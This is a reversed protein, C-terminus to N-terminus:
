FRNKRKTIMIAAVAVLTVSGVVLVVAWFGPNDWTMFVSFTPDHWIQDGSGDFSPYNVAYIMVSAQLELFGAAEFSQEPAGADVYQANAEAEFGFFAMPLLVTSANHTESTVGEGQVYEPGAIDVHAVPLDGFERGVKIVGHQNQDTAIYRGDELLGAQEYLEEAAPDESTLAEVAFNVHFHVMTSIFIVAFDMGLLESNVLGTGENWQGFYQDLKVIGAALKVTESTTDLSYGETEVIEDLNPTFTFGMEIFALDEDLLASDEPSLGIPIPRLSPNNMKISWSIGTGEENLEPENWVVEGLSGMAFWYEAESDSIVETEVSGLASTETINTHEVSPVGNGDSDNYAIFGKLSHTMLYIDIDLGQFITHLPIGGFPGETSTSASGLNSSGELLMDVIAAANIHIEFNKLWVEILNFTFKGWEKQMGATVPADEFLWRLRNDDYGSGDLLAIAESVDLPDIEVDDDFNYDNGWKFTKNVSFDDSYSVSTSEWTIINATILEDGNIIDNIHILLYTIADLVYGIIQTIARQQEADTWDRGDGMEEFVKMTKHVADIIKQLATIFSDDNDWIVMVISAGTEYTVNFHGEREVELYPFDGAVDPDPFLDNWLYHIEPESDIVVTREITESHSANLVYVHPILTDQVSLNVIDGLLLGFLQGLAAGSPGLQNFMGFVQGLGASLGAPMNELEEGSMNSFDFGGVIGTGPLASATGMSSAFVTLLLATLIATTKTKKNMLLIVSLSNTQTKIHCISCKIGAKRSLYFTLNELRVGPKFM